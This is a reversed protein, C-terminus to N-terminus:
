HRRMSLRAQGLEYQRLFESGFRPNICVHVEGGPLRKKYIRDFLWDEELIQSLAGDVGILDVALGAELGPQLCTLHLTCPKGTRSKYRRQLNRLYGVLEPTGDLGSAFHVMTAPNAFGATECVDQTGNYRALLEAVQDPTARTGSLAALCKWLYIDSEDGLAESRNAATTVDGDMTRLGNLMERCRRDNWLTLFTINHRSLADLLPARNRYTFGAAAPDVRRLYDRLLDDNNRIGNHYASIALDPRGGYSDLLIRMFVVSDEINCHVLVREDKVGAAKALRAHERPLDLERQMQALYQQDCNRLWVVPESHSGLFMGVVGTLFQCTERSTQLTGAFHRYYDHAAAVAGQSMQGMGVCAAFSKAATSGSNEWTLIADAMPVPVGFRQCAREIEGQHEATVRFNNEVHHYHTPHYVVHFFALCERSAQAQEAPSSTTFIDRVSRLVLNQQWLPYKHLYYQELSSKTAGFAAQSSILTAILLFLCSLFRAARM